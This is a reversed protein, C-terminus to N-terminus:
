LRVRGVDVCIYKLSGNSLRQIKKTRCSSSLINIRLGYLVFQDTIADASLFTSNLM